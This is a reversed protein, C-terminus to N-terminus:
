LLPNDSVTLREKLTISESHLLYDRHTRGVPNDSLFALNGGDELGQRGQGGEAPKKEKEERQPGRM